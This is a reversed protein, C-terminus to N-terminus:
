IICLFRCIHTHTSSATQVHFSFSFIFILYQTYTVHLTASFTTSFIQLTQPSHKNSLKELNVCYNIFVKMSLILSFSCCFFIFIFFIFVVRFCAHSNYCFPTCFSHLTFLSPNEAKNEIQEQTICLFRYVWMHVHFSRSFSFVFFLSFRAHVNYYFHTCFGHSIFHYPTERKNESNERELVYVGVCVCM